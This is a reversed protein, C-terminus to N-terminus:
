RRTSIERLWSLRSDKDQRVNFVETCKKSKCSSCHQGIIPFLLGKTSFGQLIWSKALSIDKITLTKINGKLLPLILIGTSLSVSYKSEVNYWRVLSVLDPLGQKPDTENVINVSLYPRDKGVKSRVVCGEGEVIYTELTYSYPQLPIVIEYKNLFTIIKNAITIAMRPGAWYPGTSDVAKEGHISKWHIDWLQVYKERLKNITFPNGEFSKLISKRLVEQAITYFISEEADRLPCPNSFLEKEKILM